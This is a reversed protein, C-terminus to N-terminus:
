RYWVEARFQTAVRKSPTATSGAVASKPRTENGYASLNVDRRSNREFRAYPTRLLMRDQIHSRTTM